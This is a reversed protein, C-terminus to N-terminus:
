GSIGSNLNKPGARLDNWIAGFGRQLRHYPASDFQFADDVRVAPAAIVAQDIDTIALMQADIVALVFKGFTTSVDIPNFAEPTV